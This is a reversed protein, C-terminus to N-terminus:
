SSHRDTTVLGSARNTWSDPSGSSVKQNSAGLMIATSPGSCRRSRPARAGSNVRLATALHSFRILSTTVSRSAGSTAPLSLKSRMASKVVSGM